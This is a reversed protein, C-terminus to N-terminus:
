PKLGIGKVLAGWRATDQRLQAGFAERSDGGPILTQPSLVQDVFTRDLLIESVDRQIKGLIEPPTGAPAVLGMW